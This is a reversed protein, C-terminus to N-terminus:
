TKQLRRVSHLSEESQLRGALEGLVEILHDVQDDSNATTIQIRFGVQDQPVLPYAAVTVYIGRRFLHRGVEDLDDSKALPIEIIPYGSTNPTAIGMMALADLIRHTKRHIAQRLLDGRRENVKLGELATALSAIPSPGSYLYPPAATKLIEKLQTPCAIFAALSSYAKSLGAVVVTNDYHEGAHRVVGNGKTGYDCLEDPAREGIVGFGHADDIYLLADYERAIKAFEGVDPANGTMSNVGDMCIVRPSARNLRLLRELDAPDGHRFRQVTAGHSRAIDCGDYITKHSRSDMFVAGSGALVPIVSMHIHTITPLVLADETGLLSSLAAELHGYLAPSGLLRSWSPHTGWAALYEPVAQIM